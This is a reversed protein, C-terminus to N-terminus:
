VNYFDFDTIGDKPTLCFKKRLEKVYWKKIPDRNTPLPFSFISNGIRRLFMTHSGKGRGTDEWAGFRKLTKQLERLKIDKDQLSDECM